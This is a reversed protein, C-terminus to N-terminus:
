IRKMKIDEAISLVAPLPTGVELGKCRSTGKDSPNKRWLGAHSPGESRQSRSELIVKDNDSSRRVRLM